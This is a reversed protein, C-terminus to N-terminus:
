ALKSRVANVIKAIDKEAFLDDYKHAFALDKMAKVDKPKSFTTKFAKPKKDAGEQTLPPRRTEEIAKGLSTPMQSIPVSTLHQTEWLAVRGKTVEPSHESDMFVVKQGWLGLTDMGGSKM